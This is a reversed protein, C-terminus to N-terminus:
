HNVQQHSFGNTNDKKQFILNLFYNTLHARFNEVGFLYLGDGVLILKRERQIVQVLKLSCPRHKRNLPILPALDAFQLEWRTIKSM